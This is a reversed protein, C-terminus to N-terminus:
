GHQCLEVVTDAHQLALGVVVGSRVRYRVAVGGAVQEVCASRLLIKCINGGPHLAVWEVDDGEEDTVAVEDADAVVGRRKFGTAQGLIGVNRRLDGHVDGGPWCEARHDQQTFANDYKHIVVCVLGLHWIDKVM